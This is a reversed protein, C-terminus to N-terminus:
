KFYIVILILSVSNAILWGIGISTIGYQNLTLFFISLSLILILLRSILLMNLKEDIVLKAYFIQNLGFPIVSLLLFIYLLEGFIYIEPSFITLIFERLYIGLLVGTILSLLLFIIIKKVFENNRKPDKSISGHSIMATYLATSLFNAYSFILWPFYFYTVFSSDFQREILIPFIWTPTSSLLVSLYLKFSFSITQSFNERLSISMFNLIPIKKLIYVYYSVDIIVASIVWYYFVYLKGFFLGNPFAVLLVLKFGNLVFSKLLLQKDMKLGILIGDLMLNFTWFIFLISLFIIALTNYGLLKLIHAIVIFNIPISLVFTLMISIILSQNIFNFINDKKIKRMNAILNQDLGFRGILSIFIMQNILLINYGLIEPSILRASLWWFYLGLFVGIIIKLSIAFTSKFIRNSFLNKIQVLDIYFM